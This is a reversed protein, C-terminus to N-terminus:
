AGRLLEAAKAALENAPHGVVKNIERAWVDPEAIALAAFGVTAASGLVGTINRWERGAQEVQSGGDAFFQAWQNEITLLRASIDAIVDHIDNPKPKGLLPAALDHALEGVARDIGLRDIVRKLLFGILLRAPPDDITLLDLIGTTIAGVIEKLLPDRLVAFDLLKVIVSMRADREIRYASEAEHEITHRMARIEVKASHEARTVARERARTEQRIRKTLLVIVYQATV